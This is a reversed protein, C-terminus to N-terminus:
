QRYAQPKWGNLRWLKGEGSFELQYLVTSKDETWIYGFAVDNNASGQSHDFSTMSKFFKKYHALEDEPTHPRTRYNKGALLQIYRQRFPASLYPIIEELRTAKAMVKQLHKVTVEVSPTNKHDFTAPHMADSFAKRYKAPISELEKKEREQRLKELDRKRQADSKASGLKSSFSSRSSLKAARTSSSLSPTHSSKERMAEGKKRLEAFHRDWEPTGPKLSQTGPKLAQATLPATIGLLFMVTFLPRV